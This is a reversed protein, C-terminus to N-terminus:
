TSLIVPPSKEDRGAATLPRTVLASEAIYEAALEAIPFDIRYTYTLHRWPIILEPEAVEIVGAARQWNLAPCIIAAAVANLFTRRIM